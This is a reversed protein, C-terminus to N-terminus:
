LDYWTLSCATTDHGEFLFTDVEEQLDGDSLPTAPNSGTRLLLDLFALRKRGSLEDKEDEFERRRERIM